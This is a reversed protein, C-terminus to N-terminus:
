IPKPPIACHAPICTCKPNAKSWCKIQMEKSIRRSGDEYSGCKLESYFTTLVKLSNLDLRSTVFPESTVSIGYHVSGGKGM